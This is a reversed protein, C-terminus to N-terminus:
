RQLFERIVSSCPRLISCRLLQSTVCCCVNRKISSSAMMILAYMVALIDWHCATCHDFVCCAYLYLPFAPCACTCLVLVLTPHLVNSLMIAANWLLVTAVPASGSLPCVYPIIQNDPHQDPYGFFGIHSPEVMRAM